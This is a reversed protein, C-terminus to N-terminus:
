FSLDHITCYHTYDELECGGLVILGSDAQAWMEESPYGYEIPLISDKHNGEPCVPDQNNQILEILPHQSNNKDEKNTSCSVIIMSAAFINFFAKM